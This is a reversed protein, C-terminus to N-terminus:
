RSRARVTRRRTRMASRRSSAADPRGPLADQLLEAAQAFCPDTAAAKSWDEAIPCTAAPTTSCAGARGAWTAARGLRHDHGQRRRQDAEDGVRAARGVDQAPEGPRPRGGQRPGATTCCRRRSSSCRTPTTSAASPSSARSTTRSTASRRRRCSTTSTPSSATRSARRRHQRLQHDRRGAVQGRGARGEAEAGLHRGPRGPLRGEVKDQSANFKDVYKKFWAQQYDEFKQQWFTVVTKGNETKAGGGRRFLRRARPRRSRPPWAFM